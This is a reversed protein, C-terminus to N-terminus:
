SYFCYSSFFYSDVNNDGLDQVVWLMMSWRSLPALGMM